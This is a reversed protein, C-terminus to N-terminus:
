KFKEILMKFGKKFVEHEHLIISIILGILAITINISVILKVVSLRLLLNENTQELPINYFVATFVITVVVIPLLSCILHKILWTSNKM